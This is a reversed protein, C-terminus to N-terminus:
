RNGVEAIRELIKWLLAGDIDEVDVGYVERIKAYSPELTDETTFDWLSSEDSIFWSELDFIKLAFEAHLDSYKRIQRNSAFEISRGKGRYVRWLGVFSRLRVVHFYDNAVLFGIFIVVYLVHLADPGFEDAFPLPAASFVMDLVILMIKVIAMVLNVEMLKGSMGKGLRFSRALAGGPGVDELFLLVPAVALVWSLMAWSVYFGLSLFILWCLYAVLDPQIGATIYKESAWGVSEYWFWFCGLLAVMWLGQLCVMGPVKRLLSGDSLASDPDLARMRTLILTRGIGSVIAWGVVGAPLLWRLVAAVPAAYRSAAEALLVSSLWPNQFELKDLGVASPPLQALIQQAQGWVVLLFPVGFLWRWAVEIFVLSPHGWCFGM